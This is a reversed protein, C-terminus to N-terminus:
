LKSWNYPNLLMRDKCELNPFNNISKKSIEVIGIIQNPNDFGIKEGSHGHAAAFRGTAGKGTSGKEGSKGDYNVKVPERKSKPMEDPEDAPKETDMDSPEGEPKEPDLGGTKSIATTKPEAKPKEEGDMAAKADDYAPHDEGKKIIGAATAKKKEKTKPDTWTIETEGPDKEFLYSEKMWRKYTSESM